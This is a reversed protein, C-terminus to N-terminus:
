QTVTNKYENLLVAGNWPGQEMVPSPNIKTAAMSRLLNMVETVRETPIQFTGYGQITVTTMSSLIFVPTLLIL